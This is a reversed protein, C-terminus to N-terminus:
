YKKKGKKSMGKKRGGNKMTAAMKKNSMTKGSPM